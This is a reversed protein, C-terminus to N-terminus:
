DNYIRHVYKGARSTSCIYPGHGTKHGNQLGSIYLKGGRISVKHAKTDVETGAADPPPPEYHLVARCPDGTNESYAHIYDRYVISGESTIKFCMENYFRKNGAYIQQSGALWVGREGGFKPYAAERPRAKQKRKPDHRQPSVCLKAPLPLGKAAYGLKLRAQKDQEYWKPGFRGACWLRVGKPHM